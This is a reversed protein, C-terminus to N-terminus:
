HLVRVVKQDFAVQVGYLPDFVQDRNLDFLLGVLREILDPASYEARSAFELHPQQM